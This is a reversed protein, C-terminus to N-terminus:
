RGDLTNGANNGTLTNALTHCTGNVANAGALTLNEINSALTFTVSSQVTDTGGLASTETVTGGVNDVVYTDNGLGGNMTDAGAGGNLTNAGSNGILANVFINGTGDIDAAGTLTLNEVTSSLSFSIASQVSDTGQGVLESVVDGANDVI